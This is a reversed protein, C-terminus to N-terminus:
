ATPLSESLEQIPEVPPCGVKRLFRRNVFRAPNGAHIEYAPVSKTVVSGAAAVGCAGITVGPCILAHAGAWSDEELEIPRVVLGFAPDSWDHNGTCLYVGQSICVNAGIRVDVLNDIWVDEGIWSFDGISLHWPYKVRISHKLVVGRGVNAGFCRLIFRRVSSSPLFPFRLLPAGAFYWLARVFRNRGPSYWSNDYSTLDVGPDPHEAVRLEDCL